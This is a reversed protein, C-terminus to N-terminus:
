SPLPAMLDPGESGPRNVATGVPWVRLREPACPILLPQLIAPDTQTPDLWLAEDARALIVPMRDHLPAITANATTVVITCSEVVTGDREWREWLGAFAFPEDDTPAICYPQKRKGVTRWEYFGDAPILCRRRRFAHRYTPKDAVTEARANFTSYATRPEPSWAPVLGWRLAVWERQGEAAVRIVGVPQSPALNYRPTVTSIAPLEFREALLEGATIQILRGCM